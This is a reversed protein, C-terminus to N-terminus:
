IRRKLINSQSVEDPLAIWAALWLAGILNVFNGILLTLGFGHIAPITSMALLGFSLLSTIASVSVAREALRHSSRIEFVFIGYDLGLGVALYMAMLHFLTIPINLVSFIAAVVAVASFPILVIIVARLDRYVILLFISALV